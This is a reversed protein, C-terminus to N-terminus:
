QRSRLLDSKSPRKPPPVFVPAPAATTQVPPAATATAATSTSAEPEPEPAASAAPPPAMSPAPAPLGPPAASPVDSPAAAASVAPPASATSANETPPPAVVASVTPAPDPMPPATVAPPATTEAAVPDAVGPARPRFIVVGVIVGVIAVFLLGGVAALIVGASGRSPAPPAAAPVGSPYPLTDLPMMAPPALLSPPALLPPGMAVPLMEAPPVSVPTMSPALLGPAPTGPILMAAHPTPTFALTAHEEGPFMPPGPSVPPPPPTPPHVAPTAATIVQLPMTNLFAPPPAPTLSAKARHADATRAGTGYPVLAAGLEAVDAFRRDPSPELCRLITDALPGPIDRLRTRMADVSRAVIASLVEAPSGEPFPPAATVLFFLVAGLSWVDARPDTVAADLVREPPKYAHSRPPRRRLPFLSPPPVGPDRVPTLDFDLVKLIEARDGQSVLVLHGPRLDRHLIGQARASAVADVAQLVIDVAVAVPFPGGRAAVMEGLDTGAVYEMAVFPAGDVLAGVEYIRAVHESDIQSATRAEAVFRAVTEDTASGPYLTVIAVSRRDPDHSLLTMSHAGREVIRQVAYRGGVFDGPRPIGPPPSPPVAHV